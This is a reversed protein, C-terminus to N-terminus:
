KSMMATAEGAMAVARSDTLTRNATAAAKVTAVTSNFIVTLWQRQARQM